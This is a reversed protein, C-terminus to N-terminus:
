AAAELIASPAAAPIVFPGNVEFHEDEEDEEEYESTENIKAIAQEDTPESEGFFPFTDVGHKHHHVIIWLNM